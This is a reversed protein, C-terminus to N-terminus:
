EVRDPYVAELIASFDHDGHGDEMAQVFLHECIFSYADGQSPPTPLLLTWNCSIDAALEKLDPGQCTVVLLLVQGLPSRGSSSNLRM